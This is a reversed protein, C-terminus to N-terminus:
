LVVEDRILLEDINKIAGDLFAWKLLLPTWQSPVRGRFRWGNIAKATPPDYGALGIRTIIEEDTGLMKLLLHYNWLPVTEQKKRVTLFAHKMRM